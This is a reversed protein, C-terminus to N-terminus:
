FMFWGIIGINNNDSANANTGNFRTYNNFQAALKITQVPCFDIQVTTGTNQTGADNSNTIYDLTLGYTQQYFYSIKGKTTTLNDNNGDSQKEWIKSAELSVMHNEKTYQWQADLGYDRYTISAVPTPNYYNGIIKADLYQAGIMLYNDGFNHQLAVRAYPATNDLYSYGPKTDNATATSAHLINSLGTAKSGAYAGAEVYLLDNWLTYISLGTANAALGDLQTAGNNVGNTGNAGAYPFGWASTSNWLDQVTPNNNLSVGYDVNIGSLKMTDAYRIDTNDMGYVGTDDLTTQIFAGINDTIKGGFFISSQPITLAHDQTTAHKPRNQVIQVMASFKSLIKSDGGGLTYGHLKFNRGFQTLEPFITHCASCKLGTQRAFSPIAYASEQFVVALFFGTILYKFLTKM